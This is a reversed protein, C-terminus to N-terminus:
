QCRFFEIGAAKM